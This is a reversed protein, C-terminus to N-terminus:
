TKKRVNKVPSKLELVHYTVTHYTIYQVNHYATSKRSTIQHPNSLSTWLGHHGCVIVVL